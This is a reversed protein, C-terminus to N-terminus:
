VLVLIGSMTQSREKPYRSPGTSFKKSVSMKKWSKGMSIRTVTAINEKSVPIFTSMEDTILLTILARVSVTTVNTAIVATTPKERLKRSGSMNPRSSPMSRPAITPPRPPIETVPIRSLSLLMIGKMSSSPVRRLKSDVMESGMLTTTQTVRMWIIMDGPRMRSPPMFSMTKVNVMEAMNPMAMPRRQASTSLRRQPLGKL